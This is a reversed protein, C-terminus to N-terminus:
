NLRTGWADFKVKDKLKDRAPCGLYRIWSHYGNETVIIQYKSKDYFYYNHILLSFLSQDFRHCIYGLKQTDVEKPCYKNSRIGNVQMPAICDETLVCLLAWRLVNKKFDETNYLIVGNAQSMLNKVAPGFKAMNSPFYGWMTAHTAWATTHGTEHVYMLVSSARNIIFERVVRKFTESAASFSMSTDFWTIAQYEQLM